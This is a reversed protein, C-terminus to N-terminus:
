TCVYLELYKHFAFERMQETNKQKKLFLNRHRSREIHIGRLTSAWRFGTWASGRWCAHSPRNRCARIIVGVAPCHDIASPCAPGARMKRIGCVHFYLPQLTLCVRNREALYTGRSLSQTKNQCLICQKALPANNTPVKPLSQHHSARMKTGFRVFISWSTM